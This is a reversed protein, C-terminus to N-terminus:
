ILSQEEVDLRFLFYWELADRILLGTEYGRMYQSLNREPDKLSLGQLLGLGQPHNSSARYLTLLVDQIRESTPRSPSRLSESAM